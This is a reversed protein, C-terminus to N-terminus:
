LDKGITNNLRRLYVNLVGSGGYGSVTIMLAELFVDWKLWEACFYTALGAVLSSAVCGLVRFTVPKRNEPALLNDSTLKDGLKSLTFALGGLGSLCIAVGIAAPSLDDLGRSLRDQAHAATVFWLYLSILHPIQRAM